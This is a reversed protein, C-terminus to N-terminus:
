CPSKYVFADGAVVNVIQVRQSKLQIRENALTFVEVTHPENELCIAIVEAAWLLFCSPDAAEIPTSLGVEGLDQAVKPHVKLERVSCGCARYGVQRNFDGVQQRLDGRKPLPVIPQVHRAACEFGPSTTHAQPDHAYNELRNTQRRGIWM